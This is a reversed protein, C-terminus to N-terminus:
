AGAERRAQFRANSRVCLHVCWARWRWVGRTEAIRCHDGFALTRDTTHAAQQGLYHREAHLTWFGRVYPM